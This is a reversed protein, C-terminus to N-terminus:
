GRDASRKTRRNIRAAIGRKVKDSFEVNGRQETGRLVVTNTLADARSFISRRGRWNPSLTRCPRM